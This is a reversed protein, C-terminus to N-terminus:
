LTDTVGVEAAVNGVHKRLGTYRTPMMVCLFPVARDKRSRLRRRSPNRFLRGTRPDAVFILFVSGGDRHSNQMPAPLWMAMRWPTQSAPSRRRPEGVRYDRLLANSVVRRSHATENAGSDNGALSISSVSTTSVRSSESLAASTPERVSLRALTRKPAPGGRTNVIASRRVICTRWRWM